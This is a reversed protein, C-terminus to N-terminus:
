HATSHEPDALTEHDVAEVFCLFSSGRVVIRPNKTAGIEQHPLTTSNDKSDTGSECVKRYIGMESPKAPM